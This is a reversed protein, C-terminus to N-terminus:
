KVEWAIANLSGAAGPAMTHVPKGKTAWFIETFRGVLTAGTAAAHAEIAARQAALGLGSAGQRATSVREYGVIRDAM